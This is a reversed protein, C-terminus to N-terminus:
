KVTQDYANQYIQLYKSLGLGNFGAVYANWDKNINKAGTIFQYMNQQVYNTINTQLLSAEDAQSPDIWLSQPVVEPRQHGMYDEETADFLKREYGSGDAANANTNYAWSKRMGTPKYWELGWTNNTPKANAPRTIMKYLAKHGGLAVDKAGATEWDTGEVGYQSRIMGQPSYIYDMLKIAAIAEQKSAKNTIVFDAPANWPVYNAYSKGNPGTLPPVAVYDKYRTSDTFEAPHEAAGAGLIEVGAHEGEKQYATGDQTIAAPDILGKAYLSHLYELGEKWQPQNAAFGLKDNNVTFYYDDDDAIFANMLFVDIHTGSLTNAGSLPIEDKKGDGNPDDNKFAELVQEFQAPTKPMKLGLKKLWTQNIWMKDPFQCHYCENIEGLSYINGDPATVDEKFYKNTQLLKKIHPAYQDILQNLPIFVGEQGYKLVDTQSIPDNWTIPMIVDPYDGSSLLLQQKETAADQSAVQFQINVNLKKDMLKTFSSSQLLSKTGPTFISLTVPQDSGSSSSGSQSGGSACGTLLLGSGLAVAATTLMSKRMKKRQGM